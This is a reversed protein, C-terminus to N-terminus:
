NSNSFEDLLVFENLLVFKNPDKKELKGGIRVEVTKQIYIAIITSMVMHKKHQAYEDYM